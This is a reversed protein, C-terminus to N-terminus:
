KTNRKISLGSKSRTIGYMFRLGSLGIQDLKILSQIFQKKRLRYDKTRRQENSDLYYEIRKWQTKFIYTIQKEPNRLKVVHMPRNKVGDRANMNKPRKMFTRLKTFAEADYEMLLHFHLIWRKSESHFDAEFSGIAIGNYGIRQLKKYLKNILKDIEYESLEKEELSDCLFVLTVFRLDNFQNLKETIDKALAMKNIHCCIPCAASQCYDGVDCAALKNALKNVKKSKSNSLYNHRTVLEKICDILQKKNKFNLCEKLISQIYSHRIESHIFSM